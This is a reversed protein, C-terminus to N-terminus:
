RWNPLFLRAEYAGQSLEAGCWIPAYFATVVTVLGVLGLVLQPRRRFVRSALGALAVVVLTYTPLYHYIYSDVHSAIWPLLLAIAFLLLTATAPGETRREARRRMVQFFILPSALLLASASWWLALNGLSNLARVTGPGIPVFELPLPRTPLLWEYWHSTMPHLFSTASLHGELMRAASRWANGPTAREGSLALGAMSVLTFSAPSLLSAWAWRGRGRAVCLGVFPLLLVAGSEKISAALGIFVAGLLAGALGDSTVCVVAALVFTVLMGDLFALRSYTILFGDGSVFAAAIFGADLSRYARSALVAALWVTVFGCILPAIRWGTSVDGFLAMCVAILLKGLPAHDNLDPRRELYNRANQVFHYEDFVFDHPRDLRWV